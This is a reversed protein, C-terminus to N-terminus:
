QCGYSITAEQFIQLFKVYGGELSFNFRTPLGASNYSDAVFPNNVSYDRNVFMWITHTQNINTRDDYNRGSLNGNADYVYNDVRSTGQYTTSDKIIRGAKDYTLYSASAGYYWTLAGNEFQPFFYTSDVVINSNGPNEYFYKHWFLGSSGDTYLGLMETLRKKKDYKFVYNPAGTNPFPLHTITIPDGFSNYAFVMTDKIGFSSSYIIQTVSCKKVEAKNDRFVKTETKECSVISIIFTAAALRVSFQKM